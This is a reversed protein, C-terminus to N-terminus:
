KFFIIIKYNYSWPRMGLCESIYLTCKNLNLQNKTRKQDFFVNDALDHVGFILTTDFQQERDNNGFLVATLCKDIQFM